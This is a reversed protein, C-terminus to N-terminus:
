SHKSIGAIQKVCEQIQSISEETNPKQYTKTIFISM